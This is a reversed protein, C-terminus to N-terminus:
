EPPPELLPMPSPQPRRQDLLRYEFVV